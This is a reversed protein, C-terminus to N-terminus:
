SLALTLTVKNIDTFIEIGFLSVNKLNQTSIDKPAVIRVVVSVLKTTNTSCPKETEKGM